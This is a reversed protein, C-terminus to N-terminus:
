RANLIDVRTPQILNLKTGPDYRSEGVIGVLRGIMQVPDIPDAPELYAITRRGTPDLLRLLRPQNGGTHVTSAALLGVADYPSPAVAPAGGALTPAAAAVPGPTAEPAEPAEPAQTTALVEAPTAAAPSPPTAAVLPTTQPSATSGDNVERDTAEIQHLALALERNRELEARRTRVITLDNDSLGQIQETDAYGRVMKAIPQEDVPLTFYPLIAVEVARLLENSALTTVQVDPLPM